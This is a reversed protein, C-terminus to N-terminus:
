IWHVMGTGTFHGFSTLDLKPKRIERWIRLMNWIRTDDFVLVPQKVLGIATLNDLFKQEFVGDKPGDLFFFDASRLLDAHRKMESIDGLDGLVQRLRGDAFDRETLCTEPIAKWDILDFTVLRSQPGLNHLLSLASLGTYTGVEIMMSPQLEQVLGALLRYHEGPWVESYYPPSHMRESVAKLSVSRANSAARLALDILFESPQAPDDDPSLLVSYEAHRASVPPDPLWRGKPAGLIRRRLGRLIRKIM